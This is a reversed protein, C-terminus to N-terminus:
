KREHIASGYLEFIESLIGKLLNRPIISDLLGHNFLSEVVHFGDNIKQHLTHEIVRKSAFAIYAKPKVITTDGLM